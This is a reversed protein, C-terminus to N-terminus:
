AYIAVEDRAQMGLGPFHPFLDISRVWFVVVTDVSISSM